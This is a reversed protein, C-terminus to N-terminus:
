YLSESCSYQSDPIKSIMVTKIGGMKYETGAIWEYTGGSEGRSDAGANPEAITKLAEM